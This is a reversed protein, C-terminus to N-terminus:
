RKIEEKCEEVNSVSLRDRIYKRRSKRADSPSFLEIDIKGQPSFNDSTKRSNKSSEM